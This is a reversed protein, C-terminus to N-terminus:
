EPPNWRRLARSVGIIQCEGARGFCRNDVLFLPTSSLSNAKSDDGPRERFPLPSAKLTVTSRSPPLRAARTYWARSGVFTSGFLIGHPLVGHNVVLNELTVSPRVVVMHCRCPTRNEVAHFGLQASGSVNYILWPLHANAPVARTAVLAISVIALGTIQGERIAQRQERQEIM